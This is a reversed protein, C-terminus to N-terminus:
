NLHEYDDIETEYDLLHVGNQVTHMNPKVTLVEADWVVESLPIPENNYNSQRTEDYEFKVRVTITVKAQKMITLTYFCCGGAM